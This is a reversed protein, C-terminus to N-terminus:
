SITRHNQTADLVSLLAYSLSFWLATFPLCIQGRWNCPTQRYDWVRYHRNWVLGCLAEVATISGACLLAQLPRCVKVQRIRGILTCSIGGVIAMSWHTRKRYLLELAPYGIAGLWFLKM